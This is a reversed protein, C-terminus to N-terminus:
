LYRAFADNFQAREYGQRSTKWGMGPDIWLQKSRIRLPRLLRALRPPSLRREKWPSDEIAKLKPVLVTSSLKDVGEADFLQRIDTLLDILLETDRTTDSLVLSVQRTRDEWGGGVLRAITMLPHWNDRTRHGLEEAPLLEGGGLERLEAFHDRVWLAIERRLAALEPLTRHRPFAPKAEGSKMREMPVVISRDRITDRLPADPRDILAVAKPYWSSFRGVEDTGIM